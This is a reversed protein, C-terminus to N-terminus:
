QTPVADTASAPDTATPRMPALLLAKLGFGLPRTDDGSLGCQQPSVSPEATIQIEARGDSHAATLPVEVIQDESESFECRTAPQGNVTIEVAVRPNSPNVFPCGRLQLVHTQAQAPLIRVNLTAQGSSWVGWEELDFWGDGLFDALLGAAMDYRQNPVLLPSPADTATDALDNAKPQAPVLVLERLGFGLQRADDTSLGCQLPSASPEATIQIEARGDDLVATLPVDIIQDECETFECRAAPQGNVAIEVAVQPNSPNVFPSGCLQLVHTQALAPPIRVNLTAQATGWVGWGELDFWGKGLFGAFLGAVEMGCRQNPELVQTTAAKPADRWGASAVTVSFCDAYLRLLEITYDIIRPKRLYRDFFRRGEAAVYEFLGPQNQELRIVTEVDVDATIPVFHQWPVLAELYHIVFESDYKLLVSNSQLAITVRSCTGANGDMSIIFKNLLQESWTSHNSGFGMERLLATAEPTANVINPLRFDVFQHDKFFMASRLRPLELQRVVEASLLQASESGPFVGTTSGAFAAQLKKAGYPVFDVDAEHFENYIFEQHPLLVSRASRRKANVFIPVQDDNFGGDETDLAIILPGELGGVQAVEDLFDRYTRAVSIYQDEGEMTPYFAPKPLLRAQRAKIEILFTSRKTSNYNEYEAMAASYRVGRAKWWALERLCWSHITPDATQM